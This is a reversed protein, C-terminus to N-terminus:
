CEEHGSLLIENLEQLEQELVNVLAESREEDLERVFEERVSWEPSRAM